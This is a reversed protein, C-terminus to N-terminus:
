QDSLIDGQCRNIQSLKMSVASTLGVSTVETPLEILIPVKYDSRACPQTLTNYLTFIVARRSEMM